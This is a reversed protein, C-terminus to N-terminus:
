FVCELDEGRGDVCKGGGLIGLSINCKVFSMKKKKFYSPGELDM